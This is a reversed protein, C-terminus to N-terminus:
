LIFQKFGSASINNIFEQNQKSIKKEIPPKKDNMHSALKATHSAQSALSATNTAIEIPSNQIIKFQASYSKVKKNTPFFDKKRLKANLKFTRYYLNLVANKFGFIKALYLM